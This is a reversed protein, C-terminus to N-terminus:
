LMLTEAILRTKNYISYCWLMGPIDTRDIPADGKVRCRSQSSHNAPHWLPTTGSDREPPHIWRPALQSATGRNHHTLLLESWATSTLEATPELCM